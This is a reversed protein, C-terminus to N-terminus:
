ELREKRKFEKVKEILRREATKDIEAYPRPQGNPLKYVRDIEANLSDFESM